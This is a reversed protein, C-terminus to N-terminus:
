RETVNVGAEIKDSPHLIVRANEELGATIEVKRASRLGVDVECQKAKGDVVTFVAWREGGRFLASTEVLLAGYGEAVVIQAEVRYGDGLSRWGEADPPYIIVNVRQEEIGLASIKTFGSPEVRQVRGYLETDGGWHVLIVEAGESVKVADTTLLDVVIELASPDGIQVLPEGAAVVGSSERYVRLVKGDVPFTVAFRDANSQGFEPRPRHQLLAARATELEHEAVVLSFEAAKLAQAYGAADAEAKDLGDLSIDDTNRLDRARKLKKEALIYSARVREVEAGAAKEAAQAAKVRAEAQELSRLDLLPPALPTMNTLQAGSEIQDGAKWDIREMQGNLPAYITFPERVRTRGEENVTVVIDGKQVTALDVEVPKPIFAWVIAVLIALAVVVIFLIKSPSM